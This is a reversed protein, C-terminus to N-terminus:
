PGIRVLEDELDRFAYQELVAVVAPHLEICELGHADHDIQIIEPHAIRGKGVKPAEGDVSELDIAAENAVDGPVRVVAGESAGDNREALGQAQAHGGLAHLVLRLELQQD